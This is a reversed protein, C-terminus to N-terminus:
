QTMSWGKCIIDKQPIIQIKVAWGGATVPPQQQVHKVQVRQMGQGLQHHSLSDIQGYATVNAVHESATGLFQRRNSGM